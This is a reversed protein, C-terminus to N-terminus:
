PHIALKLQVATEFQRGNKFVKASLIGWLNEIPNLDPSLAPWGMKRSTFFSQTVKACHISANDQQFTWDDGYLNAGFEILETDLLNVYKEADMRIPIFCTPTKGMFCLADWIMVTGGGFGRKFCTHRDQRLDRWYQKCSDPADLNFKNEDSRTGFVTNILLSWALRWTVHYFNQNLCWPLTSSSGIKM